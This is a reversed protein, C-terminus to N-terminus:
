SCPPKPCGGITGLVEGNETTADAFVQVYGVREGGELRGEELISRVIIKAPNYDLLQQIEEPRFILTLLPEM